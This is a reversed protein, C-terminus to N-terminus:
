LPHCARLCITKMIVQECLFADRFHCDRLACHICRDQEVRPHLIYLICQHGRQCGEIKRLGFRVYRLMGAPFQVSGKLVLQKEKHRATSGAYKDQRGHDPIKDTQCSRCVIDALTEM